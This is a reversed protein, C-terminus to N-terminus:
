RRISGHEEHRVHGTAADDQHIRDCERADTEDGRSNPRVPQIGAAVAHTQVDGVSPPVRRCAAAM